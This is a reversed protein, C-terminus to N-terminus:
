FILFISYKFLSLFKLQFTLNSIIKTLNLIILVSQAKIIKNNEILNTLAHAELNLLFSHFNNNFKM